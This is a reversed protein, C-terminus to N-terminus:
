LSAGEETTEGTVFPQVSTELAHISTMIFHLQKVKNFLVPTIVFELDHFNLEQKLQNVAFQFALIQQSKPTNALTSWIPPLRTADNKQCWRLLRIM